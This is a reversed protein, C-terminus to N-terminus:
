QDNGRSQPDLVQTKQLFLLSEKLLQAVERFWNTREIFYVLGMM